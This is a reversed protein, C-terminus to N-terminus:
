LAKLPNLISAMEVEYYYYTPYDDISEMKPDYKNKDKGSKILQNFVACRAIGSDTPNMADALAWLRMTEKTARTVWLKAHKENIFARIPWETRESYEGITGMVVYIKM